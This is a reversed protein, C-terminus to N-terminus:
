RKTAAAAAAAAAERQRAHRQEMYIDRATELDRPTSYRRVCAMMAKKERRCMWTVSFTRGMACNTFEQLEHTCRDRTRKEFLERVSTEEAPSLTEVTAM